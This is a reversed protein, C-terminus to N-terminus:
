YALSFLNKIWVHLSGQKTIVHKMKGFLDKKYPSSRWTGQLTICLKYLYHMVVYWSECFKTDTFPKISLQFAWISMPTRPKFIIETRHESHSRPSNVERKSQWKARDDVSGRRPQSLHALDLARTHLLGEAWRTRSLKGRPMTGKFCKQNRWGM